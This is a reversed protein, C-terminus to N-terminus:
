VSCGEEKNDLICYADKLAAVEAERREVREAYSMGPDAVCGPLLEEWTKTAADLLQNQTILNEMLTSIEDVVETHESTAHDLGTQKTNISVGSEREFEVFESKQTDEATKTETITREFDGKIVEMMGIIGTSSGQAATYNGSFGADPIEDDPQSVTAASGASTQVLAQAAEGYFHSLIDLAQQIAAVGDEAERVTVENEDKEEQRAATQDRLDSRLTALETTLKKMEADLKERRANDSELTSHLEEVDRLRYDRDKVTKAIETDCFGKQTADDAEEELLKEIMEQIMGKIKEFPDESVKSAMKVLIPSKLKQAATKLLSVLKNRVATEASPEAAKQLRLRRAVATQVFSVDEDVDEIFGAKKPGRGGSGTTDAKHSVAGALVTLAQSLAQLEEARMESRQDWDKAKQECKSTLDKLYVRDDNLLANAATLDDNASGIGGTTAAREKKQDGLAIEAQELQHKKSQIALDFDSQAKAESRELEVKKDRFEKHLDELTEVIDGAHFTYDNVPPDSPQQLLSAISGEKLLDLSDAMDLATRVMYKVKVFVQEQSQGQMFASAKLSQIGSELQAISAQMDALAAEFTEKEKARMATATKVTEDFTEITTQSAQIDLDLQDREANLTGILTTADEVDLESGAIAKTKEDTKSKCFCAFKDYTAAEAKGESAVKESLANVMMVVKQVPTVDEGASAQNALRVARAQVACGLLLFWLGTAM